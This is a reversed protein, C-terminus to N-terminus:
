LLVQDPQYPVLGTAAFGSCINSTSLAETQVSQYAILFDQKDIYNIGLHMSKEVKQGYAKKLSAFCGVDLLQLLHSSHFLIYLSIIINQIYFQNFEPTIHSKHGDFILL